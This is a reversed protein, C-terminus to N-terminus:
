SRAPRGDLYPRKAVEEEWTGRWLPRLADLTDPAWDIPGFPPEPDYEIGLQIVRAMDVGVLRSAIHLAGDIGASVGATTLIKGEEVWRQRVYTAGLGEVLDAYAWHTTANRGRLLGAAALIIAGTCVSMVFEATEASARVYDLLRRNGAADLTPGEGGPVVIGFPDPVDDFTHSPALKVVADTPLVDLAEGAVVVEFSPDIRPVASLVQLPGIIDLPTLGPYVVFALQKVPGATGHDGSSTEDTSPM